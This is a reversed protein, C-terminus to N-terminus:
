PGSAKGTTPVPDRKGFVVGLAIGTAVVAAAGSITLWFWPRRAISRRPGPPSASAVINAPAPTVTPPAPPPPKAQDQRDVLAQLEAIHAEVEARNPADSVNRLYSRYALLARRADHALRYAQGLNFLLAPDDKAQYAAEYERAADAFRGLDYLRKGVAFHDRASQVDDVGEAFSPRAVAAVAVILVLARLM